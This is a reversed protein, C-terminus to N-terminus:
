CSPVVGGYIINGITELRAGGVPWKNVDMKMAQKHMFYLFLNSGFDFVADIGTAILSLSGSSIAAYLQLACLSFNAILSAWVAIRIAFRSAEEDIRAEETHEDMSKLLSAILENQKRHYKELSKGTKHRRRLQNLEDDPMIGLRFRYPDPRHEDKIQPMVEIDGGMNVGSAISPNVLRPSM